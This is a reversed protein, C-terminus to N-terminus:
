LQITFSDILPFSKITTVGEPCHRVTSRGGM